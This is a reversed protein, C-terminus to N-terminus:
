PTAPNPKEVSVEGVVELGGSTYQYVDFVGATPDGHVDMDIPGSAGTYDIDKGDQLAKIAEPLQQWSFEDGGPATIDILKDAMQQGDTSGAAVAALYCLITADFEQAAFPAQKVNHPEASNFDQVFASSAAADRPAGPALARMGDIAAPGVQAPLGPSVLQDSGWATGPDWSSSSSLAPALQSFGSLDDILLIADPSSTTLEQAQSSYVSSGSTSLPPPALVIQDGLTGNQGQWSQIFDQTITDGYSDNSAAVNVSHGDAGDVGTSIAKSLASGELSTPLATSDVLDHDSLEAVSKSTPVPAIEVVKAPIAVNKATQEVADSSWPGTLCSAHDDNVLKKASETATDSDNGQDESVARVTHDADANGIAQKIQDIALRSAKEGSDGLAKSTGSLPLSNGIVLNIRKPGPGNEGGGGGCAALGLVLALGASVAVARPINTAGKLYANM